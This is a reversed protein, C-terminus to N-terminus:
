KSPKRSGIRHTERATPSQCCAQLRQLEGDFHELVKNLPGTPAAEPALAAALSPHLVRAYTRDFVPVACPGDATLFWPSSPKLQDSVGMLQQGSCDTRGFTERGEQGCRGEM